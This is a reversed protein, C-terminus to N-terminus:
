KIKHAQASLAANWLNRVVTEIRGATISPGSPEFTKRKKDYWDWLKQSFDALGGRTPTVEQEAIRREAEARIFDAASPRGAAGTRFPDPGTKDELQREPAAQSEPPRSWCIARADCGEAIRYRFDWWEFGLQSIVEARDHRHDFDLILNSRFFSPNVPEPNYPTGDTPSYPKGDVHRQRTLRLQGDWIRERMECLAAYKEYGLEETLYRLVDDLDKIPIHQEAAEAM